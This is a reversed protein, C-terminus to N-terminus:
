KRDFSALCRSLVQDGGLEYAKCRLQELLVERWDRELYTEPEFLRALPLPSGEEFKILARPVLRHAVIATADDQAIEETLTM